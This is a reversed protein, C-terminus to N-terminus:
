MNHEIFKRADYMSVLRSMGAGGYGGRDGMGGGRPPGGPGLPGGRPPMGRGGRGPPGGRM